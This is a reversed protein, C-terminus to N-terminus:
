QPPSEPSEAPQAPETTEGVETTTSRAKARQLYFWGFALVAIFLLLIVILTQPM